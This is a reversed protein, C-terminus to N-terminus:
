LSLSNRLQKRQFVAHATDHHLRLRQEPMKEDTTALANQLGIFVHPSKFQWTQQSSPLSAKVLMTESCITLNFGLNQAM